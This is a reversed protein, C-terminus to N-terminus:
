SNQSPLAGLILHLLQSGGGIVLATLIRGVLVPIPLAGFINVGTTWGLLAGTVLAVYILWWRNVTPLNIELPKGVFHEVLRENVLALFGALAVSNWDM